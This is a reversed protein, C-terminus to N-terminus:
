LEATSSTQRYYQCVNLSYQMHVFTIQCQKKWWNSILRKGMTFGISCDVGMM